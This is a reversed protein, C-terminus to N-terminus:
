GLPRSDLASVAAQPECTFPPNNNACAFTLNSFNGAAGLDIMAM